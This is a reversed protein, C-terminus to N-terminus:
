IYTNLKFFEPTNIKTKLVEIELQSKEYKELLNQQDEKIKILERDILTKENIEDKLNKNLQKLAKDFEEEKIILKNKLSENETQFQDISEGNKESLAKQDEKLKALEEVLTFKSQIEEDRMKNLKNLELEFKEKDEKIKTEMSKENETLKQIIITKEENDKKFELIEEQLKNIKLDKVLINEENEKIHFILKNKEIEFFNTKEELDLKNNELKESIESIFKKEQSSFDMKLKNLEKELDDIKKNRESILAKEKNLLESKQIKELNIKNQLAKTLNQLNELKGDMMKIKGSIGEQNGFIINLNSIKEFINQIQEKYGSIIMNQEENNKELLDKLIKIEENLGKNILEYENKMINLNEEAEELVKRMREEFSLLNLKEIEQLDNTMQNQNLNEEIKKNLNKSLIEIEENKKNIESTLNNIEQIEANKKNRSEEKLIEIKQGLNKKEQSLVEKEIKLDNFKKRAERLKEKLGMNEKLSDSFNKERQEIRNNIAKIQEKLNLIKQEYKVCENAMKQQNLDLAQIIRKQMAKEAVWQNKIKETNEKYIIFDSELNAKEMSIQNNENKDNEGLIKLMERINDESFKEDKERIFSNEPNNNLSKLFINDKANNPKGPETKITIENIIYNETKKVQTTWGEMENKLKENEKELFEIYEKKETKNKVERLETEKEQYLELFVRKEDKIKKLERFIDPIKQRIFDFDPKMKSFIEKFNPSKQINVQEKLVHDQSKNLSRLSDDLPDPYLDFNRLVKEFNESITELKELIEKEM